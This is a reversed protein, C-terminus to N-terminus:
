GHYTVMWTKASSDSTTYSPSLLSNIGARVVESLLMDHKQGYDSLRRLTESPVRVAILATKKPSRRMKVVEGLVVDEEDM